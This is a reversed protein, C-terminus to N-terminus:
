SWKPPSIPHRVDSVDFRRMFDFWVVPLFACVMRGDNRKPLSWGTASRERLLSECPFFM